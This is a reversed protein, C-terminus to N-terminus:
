GEGGKEQSIDLRLCCFTGGGRVIQAFDLCFDIQQRYAARLLQVAIYGLYEYLVPGPRNCVLLLSQKRITQHTTDQRMYRPQDQIKSLISTQHSNTSGQETHDDHKYPSPQGQVRSWRLGDCSATLPSSVVSWQGCKVVVTCQHDSVLSKWM